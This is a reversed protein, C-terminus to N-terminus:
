KCAALDININFHKLDINFDINIEYNLDIEIRNILNAVIMKKAPMDAVDYLQTWSIVEDYKSQMEKVRFRCEDLERKATNRITEIERLKKESEAILENLLEPTFKSKGRIANLVEGKLEALDAAIKTYDRQATKLRSEQEQQLAAIGSDVVESKPISRM